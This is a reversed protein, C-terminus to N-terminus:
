VYDRAKDVTSLRQHLTVKTLIKTQSQSVMAVSRLHEHDSLTRYFAIIGAVSCMLLIMDNLRQFNHGRLWHDPLGVSHPKMAASHSPMCDSRPQYSPEACRVFSCYPVTVPLIYKSRSLCTSTCLRTMLLQSLAYTQIM